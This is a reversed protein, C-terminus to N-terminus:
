PENRQDAFDEDNTNGEKRFSIVMIHSEGEM